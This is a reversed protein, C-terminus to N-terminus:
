WAAGSEAVVAGLEALNREAHHQRLYVTLDAVRRGHSEDHSLPGAGLSRGVRHMVDTATAEVLARVRLALARGGSKHDLPDADIEAASDDLASKAARLAVDVAGLHALGHPGIDRKAAANALVQGVARAGGYWCAAVGVGGHAFGPRMVYSGLQGVPQAQVESFRINLTDSGAMGTAPWTGPLPEVSRTSVAFLRDGDQTAATVLADTCSRAGSCYQKVGSVRWRGDAQRAKLGPGPPQAAWVGWRTGEPPAPGGLEALIAIADAHGEALRALSLDRGGLAEFAFWRDHTRGSGPLPLDLGGSNVLDVFASATKDTHAFEVLDPRM